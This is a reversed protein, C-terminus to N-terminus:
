ELWFGVFLVSMGPVDKTTGRRQDAFWQVLQRSTTPGCSKIYKWDSEDWSQMDSLNNGDRIARQVVKFARVGIGQRCRLRERLYESSDVEM